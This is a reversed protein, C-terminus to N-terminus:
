EISFGIKNKCRKAISKKQEPLGLRKTLTESIEYKKDLEKRLKKGFYYLDEAFLYGLGFMFGTRFSKKM